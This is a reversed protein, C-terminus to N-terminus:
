LEIKREFLGTVLPLLAMEPQSRILPADQAQHQSRSRQTGQAIIGSNVGCTRGPTGGHEGEEKRLQSVQRHVESHCAVHLDM